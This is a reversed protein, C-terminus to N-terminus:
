PFFAGSQIGIYMYVSALAYMALTLRDVYVTKWKAFLLFFMVSAMFYRPELLPTLLVSLIAVPYIWYFSRRTLQTVCLSCAAWLMPLFALSRAWVDQKMWMVVRNHWHYLDSNWMHDAWFTQLYVVFSCVGIISWLVPRRGLMAGIRPVNWLHLPMFLFFMTFLWVYGQTPFLYGWEGHAQQAVGILAGGNWYMFALFTVGVLLFMWVRGVARLARTWDYDPHALKGWVDEQDMAIMGLVFAWVITHQRVLIALGVVLGALQYRRTLTLFLAGLLFVLAPMDTYIVFFYPFFIPCLFFLLSLSVRNDKGLARVCLFFLVLAPFCLIASLIRVMSPAYDGVVWAKTPSLEMYLPDRVMSPAYDGVVWAMISVLAHYLPPTAVRNQGVVDFRGELFAKIQGWHHAEDVKLAGHLPPDHDRTDFYPDLDAVKFEVSPVMQMGLGYAVIISLGVLIHVAWPPVFEQQSILPRESCEGADHRRRATKKRM